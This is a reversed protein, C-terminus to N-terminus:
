AAGCSVLRPIPGTYGQIRGIKTAQIGWDIGHSREVEGIADDECSAIVTASMPRSDHEWEVVWLDKATILKM